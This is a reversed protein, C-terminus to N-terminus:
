KVYAVIIYTLHIHIGKLELKGRIEEYVVEKGIYHAYILDLAAVLVFLKIIHHM